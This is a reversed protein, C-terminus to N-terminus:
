TIPDIAPGRINSGVGILILILGVVAGVTLPDDVLIASSLLGVVPVAM